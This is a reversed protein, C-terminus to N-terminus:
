KEFGTGGASNSRKRVPGSFAASGSEGPDGHDHLLLQPLTEARVNTKDLDKYQRQLSPIVDTM